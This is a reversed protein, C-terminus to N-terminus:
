HRGADVQRVLEITIEAFAVIRSGHHDRMFEEADARSALPVFERGMPGLVDSGIVYWAQTAEITRLDYFETVAMSVVDSATRGPAYKPLQRLYTFLDKAGDFYERRGDRWLLTALWPRYHAVFMGCVPCRATQGPAPVVVTTAAQPAPASAAQAHALALWACFVFMV